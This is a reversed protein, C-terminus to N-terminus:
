GNCSRIPGPVQLAKKKIESYVFCCLGALTITIIESTFRKLCHLSLFRDCLFNDFGGLHIQAPQFAKLRSMFKGPTLPWFLPMPSHDSFDLLIHTSYALFSITFNKLFARKQWLKVAAAFGLSIVAAATFSHTLSHHFLDPKGVLIGPIFDLDAANALVVCSAALAWDPKEKKVGHYVAYGAVAHLLPLPMEFTREFFYLFDGDDKETFM